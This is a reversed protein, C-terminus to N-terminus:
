FLARTRDAVALDLDFQIPRLTHERRFEACGAFCERASKCFKAIAFKQADLAVRKDNRPRGFQLFQESLAHSFDLQNPQLNHQALFACSEALAASRTRTRPRFTSCM